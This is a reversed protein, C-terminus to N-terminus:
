SQILGVSRSRVGRRIPCALGASHPGSGADAGRQSGVLRAQLRGVGRRTGCGVRKDLRDARNLSCEAAEVGVAVRGLRDRFRGPLPGVPQCRAIRQMRQGAVLVALERQEGGVRERLSAGGGAALAADGRRLVGEEREGGLEEGGAARDVRVAGAGAQAQQAAEDLVGGGLQAPALGLLALDGEVVDQPVGVARQMRAILRPESRRQVRAVRHRQDVLELVGVRQLEADEVADVVGLVAVARQEQDAVGLLRDVAKAAGVQEGVEGRAIAGVGAVRQAM